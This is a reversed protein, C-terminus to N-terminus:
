TCKFAKRRRSRRNRKSAPELGNFDRAVKLATELAHLLKPGALSLEARHSQSLNWLLREGSPTLRLLVLRRDANNRSRRVLKKRELRSALEVATHPRIQLREALCGVTAVQGSPLGKIALLAQHQRPEIGASRAAQESFHLFRRIEYRLDALAHYPIGRESSSKMRFDM